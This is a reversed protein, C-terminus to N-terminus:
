AASVLRPRGAKRKRLIVQGDEFLEGGWVGCPEKRSLAGALCQARVPCENCMAKAATVQADDENFFLEPDANYCPLNLSQDSPATVDSLGVMEDAWGPILLENLLVSM